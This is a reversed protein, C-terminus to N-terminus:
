GSDEVPAITPLLELYTWEEQDIPIRADQVCHGACEREFAELAGRTQPGFLQDVRIPGFGKSNLLKQLRGVDNGACGEQLITACDSPPTPTAESANLLDAAIRAVDADTQNVFVVIVTQRDPVVALLSQFGDKRGGHGIVTATGFGGTFDELGLGYRDADTTMMASLSEASVINGAFLQWAWAALSSADSAM